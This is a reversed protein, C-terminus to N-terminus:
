GFINGFKETCSCVLLYSLCIFATKHINTLTNLTYISRLKLLMFCYCLTSFGLVFAIATGINSTNSFTNMKLYNM